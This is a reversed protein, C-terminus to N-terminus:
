DCEPALAGATIWTRLREVLAPNSQQLPTGLPPMPSGCVAAGTADEGMVKHLLLSADPDSAVLYSGAGDCMGGATSPVDLLNALAECAKGTEGLTVGGGVAKTTPSHCSLCQSDQSGLDSWICTWEGDVDPDCDSALDPADCALWNRMAQKLAGSFEGSGAPAPPPMNGEDIEAWMEEAHAKRGSQTDFDLGAPAGGRAAGTAQSNHCTTCRALGDAVAAQDIAAEDCTGLDIGGCGATACAMLLVSLSWAPHPSERTNM